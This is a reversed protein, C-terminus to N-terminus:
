ITPCTNSIYENANIGFNLIGNSIVNLTSYRQVVSGTFDAYFVGDDVTKEDEFTLDRLINFSFKNGNITTNEPLKFETASSFDVGYL